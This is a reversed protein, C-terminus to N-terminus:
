KLKNKVCAEYTLVTAAVGVNLSDCKGLMPIAIMSYKGDYWERAIGYRESGVILATNKGFPEDYYFHEARTDALYITFGHKELWSRCQSVEAFEFVPVTLVAGQSSKILKPHTMRVKRNCFFVADAGAGDAMRLMTGANGPIEVGDIVLIVSKPPPNFAAIDYQPLAALAMIGDPQGKESIKEFTKASVSFRDSTRASLNKILEAVEPTRVHEPCVILSEIHTGFKLCMSALWIGEAVFLKQPNPKTNSIVGKIRKIIGNHEGIPQFNLGGLLEEVNIEM